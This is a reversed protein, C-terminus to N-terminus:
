EKVLLGLDRAKQIVEERNTVELKSYIRKLHTKVTNKSIVLKEATAAYTIGNAFLALVDLERRTLDYPNRAPSVAPLGEDAPFHSLIRDITQLAQGDDGAALTNRAAQLLAQMPRGEALFLELLVEPSMVHIAALLKACAAQAQGIKELVIAELLMAQIQNFVRGPNFHNQSLQALIEQAKEPDGHYLEVRAMILQIQHIYFDYPEHVTCYVGFYSQGLLELYRAPQLQEIGTNELWRLALWGKGCYVWIFAQYARAIVMVSEPANMRQLQNLMHDITELALAPKNQALYIRALTFFTRATFIVDGDRIVLDLGRKIRTEAQIYEGTQYLLEGMVAYALGAYPITYKQGEDLQILVQCKQIAQTLKGSTYFVFIQAISYMFSILTLGGRTALNEAQTFFRSANAYDGNVRYCFGSAGLSLGRWFPLTEPLLGLAREFCPFALDVQYSGCYYVGKIVDLIGHYAAYQERRDPADQPFENLIDEAFALQVRYQSLRSMEWLQFVRNLVLKPYNRLYADPIRNLWDLYLAFKGKALMEDSIGMLYGLVTEYDNASLYQEIAEETLQHQNLWEAAKRRIPLVQDPFHQNLRHVLLESFLHHYRYWTRTNDLPIIFMGSRDIEEIIAQCDPYGTIASCLPATFKDLISTMLLFQYVDKPQRSLVEDMLYDTIFRDEGSFNALSSAPNPENKFSLVALHLGTIWGESRNSIVQEDSSTLRSGLRSRLYHNIEDPSFRLDDISLRSVEGQARLRSYQVPLDARSAIILHFQPPLNDILTQFLQIVAPETIQHFDDLVLATEAPYQAIENILTHVLSQIHPPNPSNLTYLISEGIEPVIAQLSVILYECLTIAENHSHDLSLWAVPLRTHRTWEAMLTSKGYGAPAILVVLKRKIGQDM